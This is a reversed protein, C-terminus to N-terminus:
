CIASGHLANATTSTTLIGLVTKMVTEAFCNKRIPKKTTRLVECGNPVNIRANIAIAMPTAGPAANVKSVVKMIFIMAAVRLEQLKM